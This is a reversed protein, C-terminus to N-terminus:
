ISLTTKGTFYIIKQWSGILGAFIGKTNTAFVFIMLYIYLGHIYVNSIGLM